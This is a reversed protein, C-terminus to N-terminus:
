INKKQVEQLMTKTNELITKLEGRIPTTNKSFLGPKIGLEISLNKRTKNINKESLIEKLSELSKDSDDIQSLLEQATKDNLNRSKAQSTKAILFGHKYNTKIENLNKGVQHSALRARYQQLSLITLQVNAQEPSLTNQKTKNQIDILSTIRNIENKVQQNEAYKRCYEESIKPLYSNLKEIKSKTNSDEFISKIKKFINNKKDLEDMKQIIEGTKSSFFLQKEEMEKNSLDNIDAYLESIFNILEQQKLEADQLDHIIAKSKGSAIKDLDMFNKVKVKKGKENM